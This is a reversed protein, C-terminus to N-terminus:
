PGQLQPLTWGGSPEATRGEFLSWPATEVRDPLGKPVDGRDRGGEM